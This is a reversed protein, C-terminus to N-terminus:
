LLAIQRIARNGEDAVLLKTGGSALGISGPRAFTAASAPGGDGSYGIRGTGALTSITRGSM